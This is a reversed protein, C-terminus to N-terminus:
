NIWFQELEVEGGKEQEFEWEAAEDAENEISSGTGTHEFEIETGMTWGRGFDYGVYIVAHPIDFRGHAPDNKYNQPTSYRNVHDSYFMRSLAAEGYGGISLRNGKVHQMVSDSAVVQAKITNASTLMLIGLLSIIISKKM